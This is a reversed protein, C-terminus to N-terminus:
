TKLNHSLLTKPHFVPILIRTGTKREIQGDYQRETRRDTQKGIQRGRAEKNTKRYTHTHRKSREPSYPAYLIIIYPRMLTGDTHSTLTRSFEDKMGKQAKHEQRHKIM